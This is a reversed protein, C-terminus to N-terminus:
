DGVRAILVCADDEREASGFEEVVIRVCDQASRAAAFRPALALLRETGEHAAHVGHAVARSSATPTCSSCTM